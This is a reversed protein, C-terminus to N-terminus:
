HASRTTEPRGPSWGQRSMTTLRSRLNSCKGEVHHQPSDDGNSRALSPDALRGERDVVGQRERAHRGGHEDIEVGTSGRDAVGDVRRDLTVEVMEEPAALRELAAKGSEGPAQIRSPQKGVESEDGSGLVGHLLEDVEGILPAVPEDPRDVCQRGGERDDIQPGAEVGLHQVKKGV